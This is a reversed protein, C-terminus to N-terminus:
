KISRYYNYLIIAQEESIDNDSEVIKQIQQVENFAQQCYRLYYSDKDIETMDSILSAIAEEITECGRINKLMDLTTYDVEDKIGNAIILHKLM